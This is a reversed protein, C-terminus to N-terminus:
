LLSLFNDKNGGGNTPFVNDSLNNIFIKSKQNIENRIDRFNWSPKRYRIRHWTLHSLYKNIETLGNGNPLVIDVGPIGFDSCRIDSNYQQDQLFHVINRTHSLFSELFANWTIKKEDTIGFALEFYHQLELIKDLTSKFMWLEYHFNDLAKKQEDITKSM